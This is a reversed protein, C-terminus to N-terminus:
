DEILDRNIGMFGDLAETFLDDLPTCDDGLRQYVQNTEENYYHEINLALSVTKLLLQFKEPEAKHKGRRIMRNLHLLGYTEIAAEIVDKETNEQTYALLRILDRLQRTVRVNVQVNDTNM